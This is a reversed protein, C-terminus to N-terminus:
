LFLKRRLYLALCVMVLACGAVIGWFWLPSSSSTGSQGPVLVNMGFLGTVLTLPLFITAAVSLKAMEDNIQKSSRTLELHISALYNSHAANLIDHTGELSQLQEVVHDLVDRMFIQIAPSLFPSERTSLTLLLNKKPLLIRRQTAAKTRVVKMRRLMDSEESAPLVLVLDDIVFIEDVTNTTIGELADVTVDLLTYLVWGPSPLQGMHLAALRHVITSVTLSATHHLTVVGHPLVIAMVAVSAGHDALFEGTRPDSTPERTVCFLYGASDTDFVEWKERSDGALCDELTIPHLRLAEGLMMVDAQSPELVDVWWPGESNQVADLVTHLDDSQVAQGRFCPEVSELESVRSSFSLPHTSSTIGLVRSARVAEVMKARANGSMSAPPFVMSEAIDLGKPTREAAVSAPSDLLGSAMETMLHLEPHSADLDMDFGVTNM